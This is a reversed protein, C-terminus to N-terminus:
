GAGNAKQRTRRGPTPGNGETTDPISEQGNPLQPVTVPNVDLRAEISDAAGHALNALRDLGDCLRGYANWLRNLM